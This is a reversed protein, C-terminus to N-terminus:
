NGSGQLRNLPWADSIGGSCYMNGCPGCMTPTTGPPEAANGSTPAKLGFQKDVNGADQPWTKGLVVGATSWRVPDEREKCLVPCDATAAISRGARPHWASYSCFLASPLSRLSLFLVTM